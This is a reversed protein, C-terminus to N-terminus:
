ESRGQQHKIGFPDNRFEEALAPNAVQLRHYFDVLAYPIGQPAHITGLRRSLIRRHRRPTRKM